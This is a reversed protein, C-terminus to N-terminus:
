WTVASVTMVVWTTFASVPQPSQARQAQDELARAPSAPQPGALELEELSHGM